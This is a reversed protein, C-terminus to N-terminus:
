RAAAPRPTRGNRGAAARQLAGVRVGTASEDLPHAPIPRFEVPQHFVTTPVDDLRGYDPKALDMRVAAPDIALM